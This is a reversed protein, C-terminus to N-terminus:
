EVIVAKGDVLWIKTNGFIIAKDTTELKVKRNEPRDLVKKVSAIVQEKPQDRVVVGLLSKQASVVLNLRDLHEGGYGNDVIALILSQYALFLYACIWVPPFLLCIKLFKLLPKIKSV